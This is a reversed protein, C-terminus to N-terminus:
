STELLPKPRMLLAAPPLDGKAIASAVRSLVKEEDSVNEWFLKSAQFIMRYQNKKFPAFSWFCVPCCIVTERMELPAGCFACTEMFLETSSM